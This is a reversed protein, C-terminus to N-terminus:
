KIFDQPDDPDYVILPAKDEVALGARAGFLEVVDKELKKTLLRLDIGSPCARVCAGCDVCRGATHLARMIHFCITDSLDSGKGVWAPFNQDIFCSKCYCLPCADRCAYCRICSSLAQEFHAWREAASKTEFEKIKAFEGAPAVEPVKEAVVVDALVPNRHGCGLCCEHLFDDVKLDEKFGDGTVTIVGNDVTAEWIDKGALHQYIKRRDIISSCPVGIVTLKDRDVQGENILVVIARCDCGKAVVAVKEDRGTLYVALNNECFHNWVLRDVASPERIFCPTTRLPIAVDEYGIVVDVVHNELLKKAEKRIAAQINENV